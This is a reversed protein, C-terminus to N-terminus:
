SNVELVEVRYPALEINVKGVGRLNEGSLLNLFVHSGPFFIDTRQTRETGNAIFLLRRGEPAEHLSIDIYSNSRTFPISVALSKLLGSIELPSAVCILNGRVGPKMRSNDGSIEGSRRSILSHYTEVSEARSFFDRIAANTEMKEDLYPREPGFVLIGGSRIYGDLNELDEGYLFDITPLIAVRYEALRDAGLSTTGCNWDFGVKRMIDRTQEIWLRCAEPSTHYGFDVTEAFAEGGINLNLSIKGQEMACALRDLANNYLFIIEVSKRFDQFRSERLFRIVRQYVRFYEKRIRSDRTIPSALWRDREVAMYYNIGKIGHMLCALSTFEVDEPERSVPRDTFWHGGGFAPRFPYSSIGAETRCLEMEMSYDERGPHGNIGYLRTVGGTESRPINIPAQFNEPLSHFVPIGTIGREVLMRVLRQRAQIISWQRFEVWDLYPPLDSVKEASLRLPPKVTSFSDYSTGYCRNLNEIRGEYKEELKRRYQELASPHYDVTYPSWLRHFFSLENDVQISIIPGGDAPLRAALIPMLADFYIGAEQYFKESYYSPLPFQGGLSHHVEVTQRSTRASIEPDFLVRAPFGYYTLESNLQPGPSVLVKFGKAAALDIFAGIDKRQDAKGFDFSGRGTEHVGWPIDTCVTNLGLRSLRDFLSPWLNREHRWYHFSGSYLPFVRGGILFGSRSVRVVDKKGSCGAGSFTAQAVLFSGAGVRCIFERRTIEKM